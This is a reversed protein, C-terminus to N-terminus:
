IDTEARVPFPLMTFAALTVLVADMVGPVAVVAPVSAIPPFRVSGVPEATLKLRASVVVIPPPTFSRTLTM